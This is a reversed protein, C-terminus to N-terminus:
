AWPLVPDRMLNRVPHWALIAHHTLDEVIRGSPSLVALSARLDEEFGERKDGLVYPSAYSTSYLSGILEDVTWDARGSIAHVEMDVFPSRRVSDEHREPAVDYFASGARRRDGLWRKVVVDM